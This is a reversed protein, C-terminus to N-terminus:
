PPPPAESPFHLDSAIRKASTRAEGEEVAIFPSPATGLQPSTMSAFMTSALTRAAPLSVPLARIPTRVLPPFKIVLTTQEPTTSGPAQLSRREFEQLTDYQGM